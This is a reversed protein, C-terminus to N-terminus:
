QIYYEEEDYEAEDEGFIYKREVGDLKEMAEEITYSSDHATQLAGLFDWNHYDDLFEKAVSRALIDLAAESNIKESTESLIQDITAEMKFEKIVVADFAVADDYPMLASIFCGVGNYSPDYVGVDEYQNLGHDPFTARLHAIIDEKTTLM